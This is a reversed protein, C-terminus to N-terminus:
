YFIRFSPKMPSPLGKFISGGVVSVTHAVVCRLTPRVLSLPTSLFVPGSELCGLRRSLLHFSGLTTVDYETWPGVGGLIRIPLQGEAGRSEREGEGSGPSERRDRGM